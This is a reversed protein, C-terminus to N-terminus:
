VGYSQKLLAILQKLINKEAHDLSEKVNKAFISLLFLPMHESHYYYLVRFGGRKGSGERAWRLKRVGGAGEILVGAEPSTGLFNILRALEDEAIIHKADRLFSATEVVTMPPLNM